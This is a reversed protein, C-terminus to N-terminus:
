CYVYNKKECKFEILRKRKTFSFDHKRKKGKKGHIKKKALIQKKFLLYAMLIFMFCHAFVYSKIQKYFSKM